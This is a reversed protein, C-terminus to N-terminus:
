SAPVVYSALKRLTSSRVFPMDCSLFIVADAKTTKLATRIGAVPGRSEGIDQDIVRYPLGAGRAIRKSWELLPMGDLLMAAKPRGMRSSKGGALICVEVKMEAEWAFKFKRISHGASDFEACGLSSDRVDRNRDTSGVVM